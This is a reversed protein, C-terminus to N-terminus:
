PSTALSAVAADTLKYCCSLDVSQLKPYTALSAVAADTLEYCCSLNVSQLEHCTALSAVAADTLRNCDSLNVSQLEPCTALSAVAADTLKNCDSLSVSQLKPCTALSAVAADTLQNCCALNVSQLEPCTALSAVAADTLKNCDSVNVAVVNRFGALSHVNENYVGVNRHPLLGGFIDITVTANALAHLYSVLVSSTTFRPVHLHVNGTFWRMDIAGDIGTEQMTPYVSMSSTKNDIALKVAKSVCRMHLLYDQSISAFIFRYLEHSLDGISLTSRSM